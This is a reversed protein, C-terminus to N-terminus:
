IFFTQIYIHLSFSVFCLNTLKVCCFLGKHRRMHIVLYDNRVFRLGCESCLYPRENNHGKQHEHMDKKSDFEANCYKCSWNKQTHMRMHIQLYKQTSFGKKCVDCFVNKPQPEKNTHRAEIHKRLHENRAFGKGCMTGLISFLVM